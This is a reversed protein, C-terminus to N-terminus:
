SCPNVEPWPQAIQSLLVVDVKAYIETTALNRHRLVAQIDQLCVGQRLMETAASHRLVHAGYSPAEVGCRRLARGVISTVAHRSKLRSLPARVTVFLQETDISPRHELYRLIADGVEQSLPLRAERRGKGIVRLSAGGWDIASLRLAVVEGARLGLRALLLLIARDRAGVPTQDDCVAIVRDVDGASLYRPLTSLRWNALTPLANDLGAPCKGEAILYRLFMRLATVVLKATGRSSRGAREFVFGRLRDAEFRSPDEGLSLLLEGVYRGYLQVIATSVGRVQQMWDLFGELLPPGPPPLKEEAPVVQMCRPLAFVSESPLRVSMGVSPACHNRPLACLSEPSFGFLNPIKESDTNAM